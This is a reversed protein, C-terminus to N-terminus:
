TSYMNECTCRDYCQRWPHAQEDVKAMQELDKRKLDRDILLEWLKKYSVNM